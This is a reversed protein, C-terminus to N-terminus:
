PRILKNIAVQLNHINARTREKYSDLVDTPVGLLRAEILRASHLQRRAERRRLRHNPRNM